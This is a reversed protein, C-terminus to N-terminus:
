KKWKFVRWLVIIVGFTILADSLNFVPWFGLDIFDIVFGHYFRDLLNSLGGTFMMIAGYVPLTKKKEQKFLYIIFSLLFVLTIIHTFIGGPIPLGFIGQYNKVLHFQIFGWDIFQTPNMLFYNKTVRDILFYAM